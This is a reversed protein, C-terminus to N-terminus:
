FVWIKLNLIIYRIVEQNGDSGVVNPRETLKKLHKKFSTKDINKFFSEEIKLQDNWSDESYGEYQANLFQFLFFSILISYIRKM